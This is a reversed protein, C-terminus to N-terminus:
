QARGWIVNGSENVQLWEGKWESGTYTYRAVAVYCIIKSGNEDNLTFLKSYSRKERYDIVSSREPPNKLNIIEDNAMSKFKISSKNEGDFQKYAFVIIDEVNGKTPPGPTKESVLSRMFEQPVEVTIKRKKIRKKIETVTGVTSNDLNQSPQNSTSISLYLYNKRKNAASLVIAPTSSFGAEACTIVVDDEPALDGPVKNSNLVVLFKYRNPSLLENFKKFKNFGYSKNNGTRYEDKNEIKANIGKLKSILIPANPVPLDFEGDVAEGFITIDLRFTVITGPDLNKDVTIPAVTM